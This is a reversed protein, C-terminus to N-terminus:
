GVAWGLPAHTVLLGQWQAGPRLDGDLLAEIAEPAQLSQDPDLLLLPAGFLLDSGFTVMRSGSRIPKVWHQPETGELDLYRDTDRYGLAALRAASDATVTSVSFGRWTWGNLDRRCQLGVADSVPLALHLLVAADNASGVRRSANRLSDPSPRSLTLTM